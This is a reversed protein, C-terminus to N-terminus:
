EGPKLAPLFIDYFNLNAAFVDLGAKDRCLIGFAAGEPIEKKTQMSVLIHVPERMEQSKVRQGDHYFDFATVVIEGGGSRELMRKSLAHDIRFYKKIGTSDSHFDATGKEHIDVKQQLDTSQNQYKDCVEDCPGDAVLVGNKLYLCRTCFSKVTNIAHSVFLITAGRKQMQKMHFICKQQFFADGVSLAEDVILIDPDINVNVAFALRAFMGSSYSKVPQYIFEGIDAFDIIAQLKEDMEEKSRGMITGNLYINEIGTMDPNFGAGLELLSAIRGKVQVDGGSPTLVGTLIKLLTSKGAGNKGIIGLTEGRHITFTIDRLAFFDKSYRKHFPHLSEKIRDVPNAFIKYSKTLHHVEIVAQEAM